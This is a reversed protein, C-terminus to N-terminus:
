GVLYRRAADNLDFPDFPKRMVENARGAYDAVDVTGSVVVVPIGVDRLEALLDDSASGSLHLDLFVHTCSAM